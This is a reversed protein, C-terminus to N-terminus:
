SCSTYCSRIDNNINSTFSVNPALPCKHIHNHHAEFNNGLNRKTDTRL